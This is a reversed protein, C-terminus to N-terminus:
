QCKNFQNSLQALILVKLNSIGFGMSRFFTHRSPITQLFIVTGTFESLYVPVHPKQTFKLLFELLGSLLRQGMVIGAVAGIRLTPEKSVTISSNQIPGAERFAPLCANRCGQKEAGRQGCSFSAEAIRGIPAQDPRELFLGGLGAQGGGVARLQWMMVVVAAADAEQKCNM